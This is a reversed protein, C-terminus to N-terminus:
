AVRRCSVLSRFYGLCGFDCHTKFGDMGNVVLIIVHVCCLRDKCNQIQRTKLWLQTVRRRSPSIHGPVSVCWRIPGMSVGLRIFGLSVDTCLVAWFWGSVACPFSTLWKDLTLIFTYFVAPDIDPAVDLSWRLSLPLKIIKTILIIIIILLAM